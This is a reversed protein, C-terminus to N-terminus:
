IPTIKEQSINLTEKGYEAPLTDGQHIVINKRFLIATLKPKIQLDPNDKIQTNQAGFLSNSRGCCGM